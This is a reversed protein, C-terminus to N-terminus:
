PNVALKNLCLQVTASTNSKFKDCYPVKENNYVSQEQSWERLSLKM